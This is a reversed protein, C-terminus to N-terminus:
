YFTGTGLNYLNNVEAQTLVRNWLGIEDMSINCQYATIYRRGSQLAGGLATASDVLTQTTNYSTLLTSNKYMKMNAANRDGNYTFVWHTWDSDTLPYCDKTIMCRQASSGKQLALFWISGNVYVDISMNSSADINSLVTGIYSNSDNRKTWVSVSYAQSSTWNYNTGYGIYYSSTTGLFCSGNKGSASWGGANSMTGTKGGKSDTVSTGTNDDMRWYSLLGSIPFQRQNLIGINSGIM